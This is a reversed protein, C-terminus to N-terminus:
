FRWSVKGFISREVLTHGVIAGDAFEFHAPTLLNQGVVGVEVFEGLRWGLRTDVRTYGPISGTALGSVYGMSSDWDVNHRLNLFSRVLYQQKPSTGASREIGQDLSSTDRLVSVHLLSYGPSLKWRNNVSWTIFAETGYTHGHAKFDFTIPVVVHHPGPEFAFFPTGPESTELHRYFSSFTSIDLSVRRTIQSRYGVEFDRLQEAQTHPNGSVVVM